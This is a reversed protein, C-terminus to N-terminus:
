YDHEEDVHEPSDRYNRRRRNPSNYQSNSNLPRPGTPKRAPPTSRGPSQMASSRSVVRDAYSREEGEKIKAPREPFLPGDDKIKPPRPPGQRSSRMSTESYGADSIPSLRSAGSLRRNGNIASFSPNSGWQDSHNGSAGYIQAQSELQSQYRGTPGQRPQPHQMDLSDRHARYKPAESIQSPVLPSPPRNEQQPSGEDLTYNSRLRDDGQPDYYDPAKYPGHALDSGSRSADFSVREKKGPQMSNRINDGMSSATTRSWRSIKPFFSSSSSKHKRAKDSAKPTTENSNSLAGSAVAERPPTSVPASGARERRPEGNEQLPLQPSLFEGREDLVDEDAEPVTSIRNEADRLLGTGRPEPAARSSNSLFGSHDGPSSTGAHGEPEYGDPDVSAPGRSRMMDNQSSRLAEMDDLLQELMDEIRSLDNGSKLSLGKLARKFLNKRKAPSDEGDEVSAQRTRSGSAPLPRPGNIAKYTRENSDLIMGDQQAIFKKMEEFSNRMEAASRVLTVLIETDRANRQADRVTLHDMLAVIDKSQIREIGRGTASDYLPSGVGHSYGSFHRQHSPEFADDGPSDFLGLGNTDIGSFGKIGPQPSPSIPNAASVYGEDKAGPPTSFIPGNAYQQDQYADAYDDGPYYDHGYEQRSSALGLGAGAAAATAANDFLPSHGGKGSSSNYQWTSDPGVGAAPGQIISPNTNIESEDEPSLERDQPPPSEGHEDPLLEVPETLDDISQTVSQPPSTVGMRRPFSTADPSSSVNHQQKLPSGRRSTPSHQNLQGLSRTSGTEGQVFTNSQSHSGASQNSKTDLISPDLVSAVASEVAAPHVFRPNVGVGEAVPRGQNAKEIFDSESGDAYNAMHKPDISATEALSHRYAGDDSEEQWTKDRLTQNSLVSSGEYGLDPGAEKQYRSIEDQSEATIGERKSRALNTSPASSLSDISLKPEMEREDGSYEQPVHQTSGQRVHSESQNSAVSQIPSLARRSGGHVLENSDSHTDLLNAAAAAAIAGAAAEVSPSHSWERGNDSASHVSLNHSSINSHKLGLDHRSDRPEPEATQESLLSARTMESELASRFPMPAVNHKQFVLETENINKPESGRRSESKCLSSNSDHHKLNNATLRSAVIGAREADRLGKSKQRRVMDQESLEPRSGRVYGSEATMESDRSARREKQSSISGDALVIGEDRSDKNLVVKPKRVNPASAHKSLRRVLGDRSESSAPSHSSSIDREFKSTNTMVKQDKKLEKLEPLILRRIADEVTELLKPNNLSSKSTNSRFSYQDGSRRHSSVASASLMSSEPSAMDDDKTYGRHRPSKAEVEQYDTAIGRNKGARRKSSADRSYNSVKEAARQAIRETSLSRSRQRSPTKLYDKSEPEELEPSETRQQQAGSSPAELMSDAPMSSIDSTPLYRRDRSLTSLESGQDRNLLEIEVPGPSQNEDASSSYSLDDGLIERGSKSKSPSGLSIRRSYSPRRNGSSDTIHVSPEKSKKRSSPTVRVRVSPRSVIAGGSGGSGKGGEFYEILLSTQSHHASRSLKTSDEGRSRHKRRTPITVPSGDDPISYSTKDTRRSIDTGLDTGTVSSGFSDVISETPAPLLPRRTTIGM